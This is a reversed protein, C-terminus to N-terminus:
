SSQATTIREMRQGNFDGNHIRRRCGQPILLPATLTSQSPGPWYIVLGTSCVPTRSTDFYILLWVDPADQDWHLSSICTLCPSLTFLLPNNTTHKFVKLHYLWPNKILTQSMINLRNDGLLPLLSVDGVDAIIFPDQSQARTYYIWNNKLDHLKTSVASGPCQLPRKVSVKHDSHSVPRSPSLLAFSLEISAPHRYFESPLLTGAAKLYNEEGVNFM